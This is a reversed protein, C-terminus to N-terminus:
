YQACMLLLLLLLLYRPVLAQSRPCSPTAKGMGSMLMGSCPCHQVPCALVVPCAFVHQAHTNKWWGRSALVMGGPKQWTLYM